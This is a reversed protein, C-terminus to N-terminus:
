SLLKKCLADLRQEADKEFMEMAGPLANETARDIFATGIIGGKRNATRSKRPTFFKHSPMRGSYTGYNLWYILNWPNWKIGRRNIYHKGRAFVGALMLLERKIAIVKFVNKMSKISPPLSSIQAKKVENAGKRLSTKVVRLSEREYNDFLFQMKDFGEFEITIGDAM